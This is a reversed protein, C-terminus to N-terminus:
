AVIPVGQEVHYIVRRYKEETQVAFEPDFDFHFERTDWPSGMTMFLFIYRRLGSLRMCEQGQAWYHPWKERFQAADMDRVGKLAYPHCTKLDLGSRDSFDMIADLHCSARTEPHTFGHETCYRFSPRARLLRRPKGCAPCDGPPLPVAHGTGDLFAEFMGHFLSGFLVACRAAYSFDDEKAQGTLWLYLDRDSALPHSSAHFRGDPARRAPRRVLVNIGADSETDTLFQHLLPKVLTGEAAMEEIGTLTPMM